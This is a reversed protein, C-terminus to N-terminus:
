LSVRLIPEPSVGFVSDFVDNCLCCNVEDVVVVASNTVGGGRAGTILILLFIPFFLSLVVVVFDRSDLSPPLVFLV